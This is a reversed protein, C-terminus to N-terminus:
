LDVYEKLSITTMECAARIFCYLYSKSESAFPESYFVKQRALTPRKSSRRITLLKRCETIHRQMLLLNITGSYRWVVNKASLCISKTCAEPKPPEFM